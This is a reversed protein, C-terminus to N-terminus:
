YEPFERSNYNKGIRWLQEVTEAMILCGHGRLNVVFGSEDPSPYLDLIEDFEEVFGCPVKNKTKKGNEVYVHGHVIYNINKYYDFLRLQIPTDVSPKKDGYYEVCELNASNVEVFGKTEILQKDINRQTVFIRDQKREAPFGYMCRTSANGLLRNPNIANVYKTFEQASYKVFEIFNPNVTFERNEGIKKSPLRRVSGAGYPRPNKGSVLHQNSLSQADRQNLPTLRKSAIERRM